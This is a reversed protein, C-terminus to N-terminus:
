NLLMKILAIAVLHTKLHKLLTKFVKLILQLCKLAVVLVFISRFGHLIIKIFEYAIHFSRFLM